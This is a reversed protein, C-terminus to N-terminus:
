VCTLLNQATKFLLIALSIIENYAFMGLIPRTILVPLLEFFNKQTGSEDLDQSHSISYSIINADKKTEEITCPLM